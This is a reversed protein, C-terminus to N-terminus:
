RHWLHVWSDLHLPSMWNVKLRPNVVKNHPTCDPIQPIPSLCFLLSVLSVFIHFKPFLPGFLTLNPTTPSPQLWCFTPLNPGRQWGVKEQTPPLFFFNPQPLHCNGRLCFVLCQLLKDSTWFAANTYSQMVRISDHWLDVQRLFLGRKDRM